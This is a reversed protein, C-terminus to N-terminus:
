SLVGTILGGAITSTMTPDDAVTVVVMTGGHPGRDEIFFERSVLGTGAEQRVRWTYSSAVDEGDMPVGQPITVLVAVKGLTYDLASTTENKYKASTVHFPPLGPIVFDGGMQSNISAMAANPANDGIMQRMQDRVKDSRLFANAAAQNMWIGTVPQASKEIADQVNKIPDPTGTDWATGAPTVVSADWSGTAGLLDWVEKDRWLLIGNMARRSAAMRPQYNNGTQSETQAPVFSGLARDRCTYTALSSDPDVEQVKGQISNLPDVLRFADDSNFTRYKDSYNDVLVPPSAEDARYQFNRYGALYTPLETPDHVDAPQLALTVREGINAGVAKATQADAVIIETKM